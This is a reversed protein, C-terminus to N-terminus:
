DRSFGVNMGYYVVNAVTARHEIHGDDALVVLQTGLQNIEAHYESCLRPSTCESALYFCLQEEEFHWESVTAPPNKKKKYFKDRATAEVSTESGEKKSSALLCRTSKDNNTLTSSSVSSLV